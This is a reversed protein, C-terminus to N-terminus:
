RKVERASDRHANREIRPAKAGSLWRQLLYPWLAVVGPFIMFRFGLTAGKAAVDIRTVGFATFPIAFLIGCALYIGILYVIWEALAVV